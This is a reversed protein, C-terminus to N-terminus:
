FTLLAMSRNIDKTDIVFLTDSWVSLMEVINISNEAFLSTLYATVGPLQEIEKPSKLNILTLGEMKKIMQGKFAKDMQVSYKEQTIITCSDSGELFYFTGFEKRAAKQMQEVDELDISKQVIMVAIKNKVEIESKHLLEKIKQENVSEQKLKERFRRAAILIAEMSTKREIGLDKAILRALSSYNILDRKLCSKINPHEKIYEITLGTTTKEM